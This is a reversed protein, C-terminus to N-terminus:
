SNTNTNKQSVHKKIMAHLDEPIFPKSIFDTLKFTHLENESSPSASIAIIPLSAYKEEGLVRIKLSAERGDMVPMALDMLIIDYEKESVMKISEAGNKAFDTECNWNNLFEKMVRQNMANDEVVLVKVGDLNELEKGPPLIDTKYVPSEVKNFTINFYFTSGKHQNSIVYIKSNFLHLLKQCIALGLGSGGYKRTTSSDAQTFHEFINIQQAVPIGIGTDEIEFHFEQKKDSEDINSINVTVSGKDTFKIANNILNNLIQSLRTPDGMFLTDANRTVNFKLTIEKEEAESQWTQRLTYALKMLNFPVEELELKGADIKNYDLIDNILSLLNQSAFNLLNLKEIQDSRPDQKLLWYIMGTVANMPTRIEHSMTSLFRTRSLMAMESKYRAEELDANLQQMKRYAKELVATRKKIQDEMTSSMSSIEEQLRQIQLEQTQIIKKAESLTMKGQEISTVTEKANKM